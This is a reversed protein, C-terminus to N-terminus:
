PNKAVTTAKVTRQNELAQIALYIRKAVPACTTGGFSGGEVM